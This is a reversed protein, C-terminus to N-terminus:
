GPTGAAKGQPLTSLTWQIPSQTPLLAPRSMKPSYFLIIDKSPNLDKIMWDIGIVIGVLSSNLSEFHTSLQWKIM